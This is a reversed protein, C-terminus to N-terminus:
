RVRARELDRRQLRPVGDRVGFEVRQPHLRAQDSPAPIRTGHLRELNRRREYVARELCGLEKALPGAGVESFRRIFEQDTCRPAVM